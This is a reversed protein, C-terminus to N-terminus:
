HLHTDSLKNYRYIKRRKRSQNGMTEPDFRPDDEFIKPGTYRKKPVPPRGAGRRAPGQTGPGYKDLWAKSHKRNM